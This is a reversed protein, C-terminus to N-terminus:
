PLAVDWQAACYANLKNPLETPDKLVVYYWAGWDGATNVASVWREAAKAKTDADDTYQGKLEIILTLGIDLEAIFDPIYNAAMGNHRYPITFGLHENKVWKIVGPHTDLAFGASQEWRNTDAAMLNLHCKNVAYVSKLTHYDVYHTSGQGAAGTAIRPLELRGHIGGKRIATYLSHVAAQQYKGVLLVDCPEASGICRVKELLFRKAACLAKPFLRKPTVAHSDDASGHQDQNWQKCVERALSFAVQQVRFQKRWDALTLLTREGPSFKALSGDFSTLSNLEVQNPIDKPDITLQQVQEWVIDVEFTQPSFYGEVIPFSLAYQTKEPDAFIHQPEKPPRQDKSTSVKFPVLEFPVGFVKATEEEFQDTEENLAYSRRRLARGVVQECLLQSGFPRLGVIHTVTNADWGEALMAVSVICRITRGPPIKEDMWTYGENDDSAAKENNKRVLEAWDEPVKGGPWTKKGITDLIFRLRRTEDKTGGQELDEVVKSDVRVTVEEGPQNRFWVPSQGYGGENHALWNYVEAAIKTDRCVVIFVPPVPHPEGQSDQQWHQFRQYWDQALTTIPASAYRMVSQPTLKASHGEQVAMQEVWRWVNFYTADDAGTIDRTPLQPIKVLGSEIADLLSFDAVIWPFPKGVENGSGQIYFPTASLDVCRQIGKKRGGALANIRDLGEIWITAEKANKKALFSDDDLDVTTPHDGRRYAHHAEDNFVLWHPSRGKGNGLEQRIRKFWARDSEVYRVEVQENHRGPNVVVETAVGTKVVKASDGNVSNTEKKALKHWNAIMVEGRRLADMRHVPVLQRTRYLSLDGLAPDLEQLRERITVNPCVILITDTFRDDTPSAIRNLISWASLMGMVTTKGTGTAMKCAYRTFAKYGAAVATDSPQDIPIPPQNKKYIDAAEVLFIITEAAELQAFFLRQYRRDNGASWLALLEKTIASAGDYPIGTLAGTRWEKIRSRLGNVIPLDEQEGIALDGELSMQKKTKRGRGSSDPVRYYYSALRRGPHKVPSKGHEILWHQKPEAFPSNIIPNQVENSM